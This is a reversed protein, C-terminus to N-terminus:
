PIAPPGDGFIGRRERHAVASAEALPGDGAAPEAYGNEVLWRGIDEGGLSCATAVPADAPIDSVTCAIARGRLFNRFATRAIMGCPWEGGESTACRREPEVISVGAIEIVHGQVSIRGAATAVPTHLLTPQPPGPKRPMALALEGLPARPEVRELPADGTQAPAIVEAAVPRGPLVPAPAPIAETEMDDEDLEITEVEIPGSSTANDALRGGSVIIATGLAVVGLATLMVLAPQRM